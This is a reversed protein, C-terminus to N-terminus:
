IDKYANVCLTKLKIDIMQHEYPANLQLKLLFLPFINM